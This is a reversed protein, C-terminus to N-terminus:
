GNKNEKTYDGYYRDYYHHYSTQKKKMGQVVLGLVPISLSRLDQYVESLQNKNTYNYRGVLVVGMTKPAILTADTVLGCPPTDILIYDFSHSLTELLQELNSSMLLESPNPPVTGAPLLMLNPISTKHVCRTQTFDALVDSLGPIPSVHFIQHQQSKRLDADVILVKAGTGTLSIALNAVLSSKGEGSLCSSFTVIKCDKNRSLLFMLNTRISNYSERITFPTKEDILYYERIDTQKKKM